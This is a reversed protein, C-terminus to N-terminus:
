LVWSGGRVSAARASGRPRGVATARSAWRRLSAWHGPPSHAIARASSKGTSTATGFTTSRAAQGACQLREWALCPLCRPTLCLAPQLLSQQAGCALGSCYGRALQGIGAVSLPMHCPPLLCIVTCRPISCYLSLKHAFLARYYFHSGCTRIRRVWTQQNIDTFGIESSPPQTCLSRNNTTHHRLLTASLRVPGTPPRRAFVHIARLMVARVYLCSDM